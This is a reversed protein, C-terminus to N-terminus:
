GLTSITSLGEQANMRADSLVMRSGGRTRATKKAALEEAMTRNTADATAAATSAVDAMSPAVPTAPKAGGGIVKGM